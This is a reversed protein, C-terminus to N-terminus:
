WGRTAIIVVDRSAVLVPLHPRTIRVALGVSAAREVLDAGYDQFVLSPGDPADHYQPELLHTVGDPGLQARVLTETLAPTRFPVSFVYRGGPRLVRHIEALARWPDPVHEMVHSSMVLDFSCDDFTLDQLDQVSTRDGLDEGLPRDPLYRSDVYHPLRALARRTPGREGVFYVSHERFWPDDVLADLTFHLGRGYEQLLVVSESRFRLPAQCGGCPFQHGAMRETGDSEFRGKWGCVNCMGDYVVVTLDDTVTTTARRRLKAM